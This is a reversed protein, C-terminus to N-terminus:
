LTTETKLNAQAQLTRSMSLEFLPKGDPSKTGSHVIAIRDGNELDQVQPDKGYIPPRQSFGTRLLHQKDVLMAQFVWRGNHPGSTSKGRPTLPVREILNRDLDNHAQGVVNAALNLTAYTRRSSDDGRIAREAIAHTASEVGGLVAILGYKRVLHLIAEDIETAFPIEQDPDVQAALDRTSISIMTTM